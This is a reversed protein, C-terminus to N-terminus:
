GSGISRDSRVSAERVVAFAEPLLAELDSDEAYRVRLAATKAKLGEDDLAQLEGELANAKAVLQGYGSLLRQNRSGFINSFLNSAFELM